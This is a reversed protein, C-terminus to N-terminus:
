VRRSQIDDINKVIKLPINRYQSLHKSLINGVVYEILETDIKTSDPYVPDKPRLNLRGVLKEFVVSENPNHYVCIQWLRCLQNFLVDDGHKTRLRDLNDRLKHAYNIIKMPDLMEIWFLRRYDAARKTKFIADVTSRCAAACYSKVDNTSYSCKMGAAFAAAMDCVTQYSYRHGTKAQFWTDINPIIQRKLNSDYIVPLGPGIRLYWLDNSVEFVVVDKVV